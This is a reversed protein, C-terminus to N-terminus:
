QLGGEERDLGFGRPQSLERQTLKLVSEPEGSRNWAVGGLAIANTLAILVIGAALTRGRPWTLTM